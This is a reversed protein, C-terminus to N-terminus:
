RYRGPLDGQFLHSDTGIFHDFRAWLPEPRHEFPVERTQELEKISVRKAIQSLTEPDHKM